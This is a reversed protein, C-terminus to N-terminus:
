ASSLQRLVKGQREEPAFPLPYPGLVEELAQQYEASKGRAMESLYTEDITNLLFARQQKLYVASHHLGIDGLFRAAEEIDDYECPIGHLNGPSSERACRELRDRITELSRISRARVEKPPSFPAARANPQTTPPGAM